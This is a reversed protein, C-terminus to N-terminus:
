LPIHTVLFVTSAFCQNTLPPNSTQKVTITRPIALRTQGLFLCISVLKQQILTSCIGIQATTGTLTVDRSAAGVNTPIDIKAGSQEQLERITAGGKGIIRGVLDNRIQMVTTEAGPAAAAMAPAAASAAYGAQPQQAQAQAQQAYYAAWAAAHADTSNTAQAAQAQGAADQQGYAQQQQAQGSAAQQGYAQQQQGYADWQQQQQQPSYADWQQQQYQQQQQPQPQPQPQGGWQQQQQQQPQGYAGWQQQQQPQQGYGGWQQQQQGYGTYGGHGTHNTNFGQAQAYAALNPDPNGIKAQLLMNCYTMQNTDGSITVARQGSGSSEKAIDIHAGSQDQLEKITSGGKGIVRGVMEDPISVVM